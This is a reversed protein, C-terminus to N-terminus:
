VYVAVRDRVAPESACNLGTGTGLEMLGVRYIDRCGLCSVWGCGECMACTCTCYRILGVGCDRMSQRTLAWLVPVPVGCGCPM